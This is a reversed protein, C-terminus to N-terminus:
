IFRYYIIYVTLQISHWHPVFSEYCFMLYLEWFFESRFTQMLCCYLSSLTVVLEAKISSLWEAEAMLISERAVVAAERYQM